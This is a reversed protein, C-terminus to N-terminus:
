NGNTLKPLSARLARVFNAVMKCLLVCFFSGNNGLGVGGGLTAVCNGRGCCGMAGGLTGSKDRTASCGVTSCGDFDSGAM